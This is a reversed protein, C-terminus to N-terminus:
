APDASKETDPTKEAEPKGHRRVWDTRISNIRDIMLIGDLHDLEHQMAVAELDRVEYIVPEGERDQAEITVRTARKVNALYEPFSLCGERSQKNRSSQVIRPNILIKLQDRSTKATMDLTFVRIPIGCQIAALGIAGRSGYMTDLLDDIQKQLAPGFDTVPESVERLHPSPYQYIKLESM